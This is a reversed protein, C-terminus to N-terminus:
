YIVTVVCSANSAVPFTKFYSFDPFDHATSTVNEVSYSKLSSDRNFLAVDLFSIHLCSPWGETDGDGGGRILLSQEASAYKSETNIRLRRLGCIALYAAPLTNTSCLALKLDQVLTFNLLRGLASTDTFWVTLHGHYSAREVALPLATKCSCMLNALSYDCDRIDASCTCNRIANERALILTSNKQGATGRQLVFVGLTGLLLLCHGSPPGM